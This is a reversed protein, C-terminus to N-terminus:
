KKSRSRKTYRMENHKAVEFEIQKKLFSPSPQHPGYYTTTMPDKMMSGTEKYYFYKAAGYSQCGDGAVPDVYFNIDPFDEQIVSNACINLACGGSFIINKVDPKIEIIQKIRMRFIDETHKQLKYAIDARHQFDGYHEMSPFNYTNVKMDSFALNMDTGGNKLIYDPLKPNPRGYAALGMTKGCQENDEFGLHRTMLGYLMGIDYNNTCHIVGSEQIREMWHYPRMDKDLFDSPQAHPLLVSKYLLEEKCPYSLNYITTTELFMWKTFEDLEEKEDLTLDKERGLLEVLQNLRFDAGWGDVVLCVAEDFGSSYFGSTAHYFHHREWEEDYDVTKPTIGYKELAERILALDSDTGNTVVLKDIGFKEHFQGIKDFVFLLSKDKKVTTLREELITEHLKGDILFTVGSEHGSCSLAVVNM